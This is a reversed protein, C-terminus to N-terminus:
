ANTFKFYRVRADMSLASSHPRVSFAFKPPPLVWADTKVNTVYLKLTALFEAKRVHGKSKKHDRFARYIDEADITDDASDTFVIIDGIILHAPDNMLVLKDKFELMSPPLKHDEFVHPNALFHSYGEYAWRCM